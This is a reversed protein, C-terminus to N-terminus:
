AGAGMLEPRFFPELATKMDRLSRLELVTKKLKEIQEAQNRIIENKERITDDRIVLLAEANLAREKWSMVPAKEVKPPTYKKIVANIKDRDIQKKLGKQSAAIEKLVEKEKVAGCERRIKAVTGVGYQKAEEPFHMYAHLNDEFTGRRMNCTGMLYDDFSSNKYVPNEKWRKSYKLYALMYTMDAQANKSSKHSKQIEKEIEDIGKGKYKKVLEDKTM